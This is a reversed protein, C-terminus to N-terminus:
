NEEQRCQNEGIEVLDPKKRAVCESKVAIAGNDQRKLQPLDESALYQSHREMLGYRTDESM